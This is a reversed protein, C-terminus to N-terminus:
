VESRPRTYRLTPDPLSPEVYQFGNLSNSFRLTLPTYIKCIYFKLLVKIYENIYM